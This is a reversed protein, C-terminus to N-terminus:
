LEPSRPSRSPFSKKLDNVQYSYTKLKFNELLSCTFLLIRARSLFFIIFTIINLLFLILLLPLNFFNGVHARSFDNEREGSFLIKKNNLLKNPSRSPSRASKDNGENVQVAECAITKVHCLTPKHLKKTLCM